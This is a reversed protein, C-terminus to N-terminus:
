SVYSSLFSMIVLVASVLSQYNDVGCQPARTLVCVKPRDRCFRAAVFLMVALVFLIAFALSLNSLAIKLKDQDM